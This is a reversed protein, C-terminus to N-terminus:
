EYQLRTLLRGIEELKLIYDVSALEIAAKPMTPVEATEPDQVIATGGREKIKTLGYSGDKNAGTLIIGILSGGFTDAATEFLVDISPRAYCVREEVNLTFSEDKEILIHYNPPALYVYGSVAIEKDEIEKVRLKCFRKLYETLYSESQINLHQVIIVPISFDEPLASLIIRLAEMGGASSGIVVAKYKM